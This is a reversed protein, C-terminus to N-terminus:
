IKLLGLQRAREAHTHIWAHCPRCAYEYDLINAGVQGNVHHPDLQNKHAQYSINSNLNPMMEHQVINHCFCKQIDKDNFQKIEFKDQWEQKEKSVNRLGGRQLGFRVREKYNPKRLPKHQYEPIDSM